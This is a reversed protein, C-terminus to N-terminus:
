NVAGVRVRPYLDAQTFGRTRTYGRVELFLVGCHLKGQREEKQAGCVKGILGAHLLRPELPVAGLELYDDVLVTGEADGFFSDGYSQLCVFTLFHHSVEGSTSLQVDQLWVEGEPNFHCLVADSV